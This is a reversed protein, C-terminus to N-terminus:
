PRCPFWVAHAGRELRRRRAVGSGRHSCCPEAVSALDHLRRGIATIRISDHQLMEVVRQRMLTLPEAEEVDWVRDVALCLDLPEDGDVVVVSLCEDRQSSVLDDSDAAVVPEVVTGFRLDREHGAIVM